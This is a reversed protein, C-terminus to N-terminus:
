LYESVAVIDLSANAAGPAVAACRPAWYRHKALGHSLEALFVKGDVKYPAVDTCGLALRGTEILESFEQFLYFWSILRPVEKSQPPPEALYCTASLEKLTCIELTENWCRRIIIM